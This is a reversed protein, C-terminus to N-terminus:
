TLGCRASSAFFGASSRQKSTKMTERPTSGCFCLPYGGGSRRRGWVPSRWLISDIQNGGTIRWPTSTILLKYSLNVDIRVVEALDSFNLKPQKLMRYVRMITASQVEMINASLTMPRDFYFGQFLTNAWSKPKLTSAKPRSKKLSCSRTLSELSERFPRGSRKKMQKFDVKILDVLSILPNLHAQGLYDDLAFVYGQEKWHAVREILAADVEATELIEIIFEDPSFLKIVDDMLLDKTFNIFATKGNTLTKLGFTTVADALVTKTAENGDKDPTYGSKGTKDRYLLEYGFIKEQANFIPQRAMYTKM